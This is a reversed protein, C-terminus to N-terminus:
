GVAATRETGMAVAVAFVLAVMLEFAFAAATYAYDVVVPHESEESAIDFAVVRCAWAEGWSRLWSRGVVAETKCHQRHRDIVWGQRALGAVM